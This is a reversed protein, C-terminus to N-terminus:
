AQAPLYMTVEMSVPTTQVKPAQWVKKQMIKRGQPPGQWRAQRSASWTPMGALGAIKPQCLAQRHVAAPVCRRVLGYIPLASPTGAPWGHTRGDQDAGCVEQVNETM